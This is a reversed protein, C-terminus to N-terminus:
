QTILLSNNGSHADVIHKHSLENSTNRILKHVTFIKADLFGYSTELSLYMGLPLCLVILSVVLLSKSTFPQLKIM